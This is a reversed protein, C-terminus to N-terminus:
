RFGLLCDGVPHRGVLQMAFRDKIEGRPFLVVREIRGTSAEQRRELAVQCLVLDLFARDAETERPGYGCLQDCADRFEARLFDGPTLFITPCSFSCWRGGSEDAAETLITM